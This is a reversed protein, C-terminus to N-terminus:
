PQAAVAEGAGPAARETELILVGGLVAAVGAVQLLTLREGLLMIALVITVVPELNSVIAARGAGILKIGSLYLFIPAVTAAVAMVALVALVDAGLNGQWAWPPRAALAILAGFTLVYVNVALPPHRRLQRQIGVNYAAYLAACALSFLVGPVSVTAAGLQELGTALVVGAFTVGLAALRRGTLHERLLVASGINVMAPYTYLLAAFVSADVLELSRFYLISSLGVGLPGVLAIYALDRWGIRLSARDVVLAIAWIAATAILFRVALLTLPEAGLAYGVKILISLL